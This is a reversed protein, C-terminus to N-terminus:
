SGAAQLELCGYDVHSMQEGRAVCTSVTIESAKLPGMKTRPEWAPYLDRLSHKGGTRKETKWVCIYLSTVLGM